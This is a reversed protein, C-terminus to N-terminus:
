SNHRAERRRRARNAMAGALRIQAEHEEKSTGDPMEPEEDGEVLEQNNHSNDVGRWYTLMSSSSMTLTHASGLVQSRLDVVESMLTMAEDYRNQAYWWTAALDHMVTLTNPHQAGLVEMDLVRVEVQM